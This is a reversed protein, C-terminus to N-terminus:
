GCRVGLVVGAAFAYAACYIAFHEPSPADAPARFETCQWADLAGQVAGLRAWGDRTTTCPDVPEMGRAHATFKDLAQEPDVGLAARAGRMCVRQMTVLGLEPRRVPPLDDVTAIDDALSM